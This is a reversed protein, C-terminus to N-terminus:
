VKENICRLIKSLHLNKVRRTIAIRLEAPLKNIVNPSVLQEYGSVPLGLAGLSRVNSEIQDYMERLKKVDNMSEVAAINLLKDMHTSIIVHDDGFRRKLLDMAETYTVNSVKLGAIADVAILYSFKVVNELPEHSDIAACFM